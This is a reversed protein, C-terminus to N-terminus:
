ESPSEPMLQALVEGARAVESSAHSATITLRLRAQKRPVSPYRVAPIYIGKERLAAAVSIAKQEDGIHLPIIASQSGAPRARDERQWQNCRNWLEARREDGHHSQVFCVGAAAAAAAAPVPATSFIFTRARNVLYDVLARSGCIFGGASGLAKGLTGLQIEIQEGLGAESVLGRGARGYLGTAHAEDVMLWAGFKEKLLVLERLPARDGDMSFVSETIVLVRQRAAGSRQATWQLIHELEGLDNHAFIRLKAGSLRAADVLSAHSFKDLVVIDDKGLLACIVGLAAGYGSSFSLAAPAGKFAALAEELDHHPKLSGCLLRSSGSGAGYEEIAKM